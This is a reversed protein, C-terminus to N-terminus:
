SESCFQVLCRSCKLSEEGDGIPISLNLHRGQPLGSRRVVAAPSRCRLALLPLALLPLALM